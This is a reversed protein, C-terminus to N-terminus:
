GGSAGTRSKCIVVVGGVQPHTGPWPDIWEQVRVSCTRGRVQMLDDDSVPADVDLYVTFDAADVEGSEGFQLTTNGPAVAFAELLIPDGSTGPNGDDDISSQPIVTVQEM